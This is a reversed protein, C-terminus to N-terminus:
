EYRLAEVPNRTAAKWSQWSVTILAISLALVGALAFIWWSLSTKYAFNELWNTITYYAIPTAIVFAITLWRIFDKNLMIMVESVKAGNVKRIGIEKTKNVCLYIIQGLMGIITLLIAIIALTSISNALQQEKKYMNDFVVDYFEFTFLENPAVKKWVKKLQTIQDKTNGSSLRISLTNTENNDFLLCVPKVLEHMSAYNFDKVVGIVEYGGERHNNYRKNKLDTWNYKKYATENMICAKNIDGSLFQRGKILSIDFTKIFSSDVKICSLMFEKETGSGMSLNIEGPSGTSYSSSEVFSLANIQQLLADKQAFEYPIVVKILNNKNFGPNTTEMYKLQKVITIVGILLIISAAFQTTILISKIPHHANKKPNNKIGKIINLKYISRIPVYITLLMIFTNILILSLLIAPNFLSHPNITTGFLVSALDAFLYVLIFAIFTVSSLILLSESAFYFILQTNGAGNIKKISVERIKYQLLSINFNIYNIVSLILIIVAIISIVKLFLTNGSRVESGEISKSLYIHDLPEISFSTVRTQHGKIVSNFNQIFNEPNTKPKLEIYQPTPNYCDGDNCYYSFRLDENEANVFFDSRLSSNEPFDEVIATVTIDFMNDLNIKKGLPNKDGFLKKATSQTLVIAMSEAFPKEALQSIVPQHFVSFYDNTTSIGSEVKTINSDSKLTMEWIFRDIPANSEIDPFLSSIQESLNFDLACTSNESDYLRYIREHNEYCHDMTFEHYIYIVSLLFVTIGITLGSITFFTYVANKKLNRFAHHINYMLKNTM